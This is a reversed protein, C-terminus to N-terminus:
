RGHGPRCTTARPLVAYADHQLPDLADHAVGVLPLQLLEGRDDLAHVLEFRLHLRARVSLEAGLGVLEARTELRTFRQVIKQRLGEGGHTLGGAAADTQAVEVFLEDAADDELLALDSLHLRAFPLREDGRQGHIEVREFALADMQDCHVIVQRFAVGLPHCGDVIGEAEGDADELM